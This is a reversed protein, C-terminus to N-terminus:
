PEPASGAGAAARLDNFGSTHNYSHAEDGFYSLQTLADLYKKAPQNGVLCQEKLTPCLKGPNVVDLFNILAVLIIYRIDQCTISFNVHEELQAQLDDPPFAACILTKCDAVLTDRVAKPDDVLAYIPHDPELMGSQHYFLWMIQCMADKSEESTGGNFHDIDKTLKALFEIARRHYHEEFPFLFIESLPSELSETYKIFVRFMDINNAELIIGLLIRLGDEIPELAGLGSIKGDKIGRVAISFLAELRAIDGYLVAVMMHPLIANLTLAELEEVTPKTKGPDHALYSAVDKSWPEVVELGREEGGRVRCLRRSNVVTAGVLLEDPMDASSVHQTADGSRNSYDSHLCIQLLMRVFDEREDFHYHENLFSMPLPRVEKGYEGSFYALTDFPVDCKDLLEIQKYTLHPQYFRQGSTEIRTVDLAEAWISQNAEKPTNGIETHRDQLCEVAFRMKELTDAKSLLTKPPVNPSEYNHM